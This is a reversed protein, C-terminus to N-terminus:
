PKLFSRVFSFFPMEKKGGLDVNGSKRTRVIVDHDNNKGKHYRIDRLSVIVIQNMGNIGQLKGTGATLFFSHIDMAIVGPLDLILITHLFQLQLDASNDAAIRGTMMSM